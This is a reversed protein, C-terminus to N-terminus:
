LTDNQVVNAFEDLNVTTVIGHIALITKLGAM